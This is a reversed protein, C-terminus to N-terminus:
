KENIHGTSPSCDSPLRAPFVVWLRRQGIMAARGAQVGPQSVGAVSGGAAVAFAAQPLSAAGLLGLLGAALATRRRWNTM